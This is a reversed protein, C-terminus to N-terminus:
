LRNPSFKSADSSDLKFASHRSELIAEFPFNEWCKGVIKGHPEWLPTELIQSITAGRRARGVCPAEWGLKLAHELLFFKHLKEAGSDRAGLARSIRKIQDLTPVIWIVDELYDCQSYFEAIKGYDAESKKSLEVELAVVKAEPKGERIVPVKWYGDPRHGEHSPVWDPLADRQLARLMQESIKKVNTYEQTLNLGLHFAMVYRDHRIAESGTGSSILPPLEDKIRDFGRSALTWVKSESHECLKLKIYGLDKLRNLYKYAAHGMRKSGPFFKVAIATTTALKWTWLFTLISIERKPDLARHQIRSPSFKTTM